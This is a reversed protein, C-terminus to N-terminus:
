HRKAVNWLCVVCYEGIERRRFSLASYKKKNLTDPFGVLHRVLHIPKASWFNITDVNQVAGSVLGYIVRIFGEASLNLSFLLYFTAPKLRWRLINITSGRVSLRELTFFTVCSVEYCFVVHLLAVEWTRGSQTLLPCVSGQLHQEQPQNLVQTPQVKARRWAHAYIREDTRTNENKQMQKRTQTLTHTLSLFVFLFVFVCPGTPPARKLM